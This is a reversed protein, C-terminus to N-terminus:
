DNIQELIRSAIKRLESRKREGPIVGDSIDIQFKSDSRYSILGSLKLFDEADKITVGSKEAQRLILNTAIGLQKLKAVGLLNCTALTFQNSVIQIPSQTAGADVVVLQAQERLLSIVNEVLSTPLASAPKAFGLLRLNGLKPLRDFLASASPLGSLEILQEWNVEAKTDITSLLSLSSRQFDLDILVVSKQQAAVFSVATALVSSGAGAVASRLSILPSKVVKQNVLWTQFWAAAEPLQILQAPAYNAAFRWLSDSLERSLLVDPKLGPQDILAKPDAVLYEAPSIIPYDDLLRLEVNVGAAVQLALAILEADRSLLVFGSKM